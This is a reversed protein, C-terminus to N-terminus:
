NILILNMKKKRKKKEGELLCYDRKRREGDRKRKEDREREREKESERSKWQEEKIGSIWPWNEIKRKGKRKEIEARWNLKKMGLNSVIRGIEGKIDRWAKIKKLKTMTKKNNKHTEIWNKKTSNKKFNKKFNKKM